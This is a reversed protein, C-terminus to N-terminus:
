VKGIELQRRGTRFFDVWMCVTVNRAPWLKVAVHIVNNCVGLIQTSTGVDGGVFKISISDGVSICTYIKKRDARMSPRMHSKLKKQFAFRVKKHAEGNNLMFTGPCKAGTIRHRTM